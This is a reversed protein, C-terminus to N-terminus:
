QLLDGLPQGAAHIRVLGFEVRRELKRGRQPASGGRMALMLLLGAFAVLGPRVPIGLVNKTFMGAHVQGFLRQNALRGIYAEAAHTGRWGPPSMMLGRM